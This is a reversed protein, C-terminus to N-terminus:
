GTLTDINAAFRASLFMARIVLGHSLKQFACLIDLYPFSPSAATRYVFAATQDTRDAAGMANLTLGASCQRSIRQASHLGNTACKIVVVPGM